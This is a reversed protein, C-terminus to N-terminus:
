PGLTFTRESSTKMEKFDEKLWGGLGGGGEGLM